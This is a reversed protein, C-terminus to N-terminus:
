IFSFIKKGLVSVGEEWEETSVCRLSPVAPGNVQRWEARVNLPSGASDQQVHVFGSRQALTRGIWWHGHHHHLLIGDREFHQGGPVRSYTGLLVRAWGEPLAGDDATIALSSPLTTM